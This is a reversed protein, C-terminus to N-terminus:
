VIVYSDVERQLYPPKEKHPLARANFVNLGKWRALPKNSKEGKKGRKPEAAKKSKSALHATSMEAIVRTRNTAIQELRAQLSLTDEVTSQESSFSERLAQTVEAQQADLVSLAKVLKLVPDEAPSTEEMDKSEVEPDSHDSDDEDSAVHRSPDTASSGSSSSSSSNSSLSTPDSLPLSPATGPIRMSKLSSLLDMPAGGPPGDDLGSRLEESTFTSDILANLSLSGTYDAKALPNSQLWTRDPVFEDLKHERRFAVGWTASSVGAKLKRFSKPLKRVKLGLVGAHSYNSISAM